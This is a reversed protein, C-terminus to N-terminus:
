IEKENKVVVELPSGRKNGDSHFDREVLEDVKNVSRQPVIVYPRGKEVSNEEEIVPAHPYNYLVCLKRVEGMHGENFYAYKMGTRSVYCFPEVHKLVFRKFRRLENRDPTREYIKVFVERLNYKVGNGLRCKRLHDFVALTNTWSPKRGARRDKDLHRFIKNIHRERMIEFFMIDNPIPVELLNMGKSISIMKKEYEDAFDEIKGEISDLETQIKVYDEKKAKRLKEKNKKYQAILIHYENGQSHVHHGVEHYLVSAFFEIFSDYINNNGYKFRNLVYNTIGHLFLRIGSTGKDDHSFQQGMLGWWRRHKKKVSKSPVTRVCISKLGELEQPPVAELLKLILSRSMLKGVKIYLAQMRWKRTCMHKNEENM